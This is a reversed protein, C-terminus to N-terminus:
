RCFAVRDCRHRQRWAPRLALGPGISLCELRGKTGRAAAASGRVEARCGSAAHRSFTVCVVYRVAVRESHMSSWRLRLTISSRPIPSSHVPQLNETAYFRRVAQAHLPAPLYIPHVRNRFTPCSDADNCVKQGTRAHDLPRKQRPSLRGGLPVIM